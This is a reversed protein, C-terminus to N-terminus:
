DISQISVPSYLKGSGHFFKTFFEYYHLRLSQIGASLGELIIVLINGFILIVIGWVTTRTSGPGGSAMQALTFFSVMLSVHAIGLGAVRMFSLTNSLYGSFVELLEVVGDMAFDVLLKPSFHGSGHSHTFHEIPSELFLLLVPLGVLVFLQAPAPVGKYGHQVMYYGVYIGGTYIWGGIIGGKSLLLELWKKKIALNIWNFVLGLLIVFIGFYITLTLIDAVSRISSLSHMSGTVVGHYDFWLSKFIRIGFYSGFLIGFLISSSGCWVLLATLNRLGEKQAPLTHYGALGLAVLIAGQGADAFMLGFMAMYLFVVIFTPDITGYAPIGYNTVLMQFPAFLKPNNFQVPPTEHGEEVDSTGDPEIWEIYIRNDTKGKLQQNIMEKKNVPIWGTFIVSSSSRKFFSQMKFILEHIHLQLWIETLKAHNDTVIKEAQEQLNKQDLTLQEIKENINQFLNENLQGLQEPFDIDAWGVGQLIKQVNEKDRKLYLLLVHVSDPNYLLPMLASPIEKLENRLVDIKDKAVAGLVLSIYSFNSTTIAESFDHGYLSIKKQIDQYKL